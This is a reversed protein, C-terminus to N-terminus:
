TGAGLTMFVARTYKIKRKDTSPAKAVAQSPKFSPTRDFGFSLTICCVKSPENEVTDVGVESFLYENLM